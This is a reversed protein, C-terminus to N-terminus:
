RSSAAVLGLRFSAWIVHLGGLEEWNTWHRDLKIEIVKRFAAQLEPDNPSRPPCAMSFRMCAALLSPTRLQDDLLAADSWEKIAGNEGVMYDPLKAIMAKWVPIKEPTRVGLERLLQRDREAAAGRSADRGRCPLTLHRVRRASHQVALTRLRSGDPSFIWSGMRGKTYTTRLSCLAAKEMFPLAHDELFEKDGTYLYYDYFFHAAWAGGGVWFGGAFNPAFRMITVMRPPSALLCCLAGRVSSTRNASTRWGSARDYEIYSTYALM